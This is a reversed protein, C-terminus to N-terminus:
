RNKYVLNVKKFITNPNDVQVPQVPRNWVSKKLYIILKINKKVNILKILKTVLLEFTRDSLLSVFVWINAIIVHM